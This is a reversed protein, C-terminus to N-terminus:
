FLPIQVGNVRQDRSRNRYGPASRTLTQRDQREQAVAMIEDLKAARRSLMFPRIAKALWLFDDNKGVEWHWSPSKNTGGRVYPGTVKGVGTWEHLRDIVDQDCMDVKMRVYTRPSGALYFSGEGEIIGAVWAAQIENM